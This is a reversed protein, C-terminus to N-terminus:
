QSQLSNTPYLIEKVKILGSFRDLSKQSDIEIRRQELIISLDPLQTEPFAEREELIADTNPASYSLHRFCYNCYNNEKDPKLHGQSDCESYRKDLERNFEKYRRINQKIQELTM